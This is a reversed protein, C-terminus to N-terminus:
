SRLIMGSELALILGTQAVHFGIELFVHTLCAFYLLLLFFNLNSFICLCDDSHKILMYCFM